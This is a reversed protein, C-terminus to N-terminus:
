SGGSKPLATATERIYLYLRTPAAEHTAPFHLAAETTRPQGNELTERILGNVWEAQFTAEENYEAVPFAITGSVIAILAIGFMLLAIGGIVILARRNARRLDDSQMTAPALRELLRERDYGGRFDLPRLDMLNEPLAVSDTRIPLIRLREARAMAIEAQVHQDALSAHSVIVILVPETSSVSHALDDRIREALREEERSYTIHIM